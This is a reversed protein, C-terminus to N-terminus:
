AIQNGAVPLSTDGFALNGDIQFAGPIGAISADCSGNDATFAMHLNGAADYALTGAV